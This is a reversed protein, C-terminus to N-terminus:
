FCLQAEAPDVSWAEVVTVAPKTAANAAYRMKLQIQEAFPEHLAGYELISSLLAIQM